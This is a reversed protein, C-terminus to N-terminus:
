ALELTGVAGGTRATPGGARREVRTTRANMVFRIGEVELAKRLEAAVDADERNLLEAGQHIVTVQSGFRRFMQGFELGIYGGGLALLHEPLERLEMLSSNTLYEVEALGPIPPISARTGANIFIRESELEQDDVRVRREDLFRGQGRYLHLNP